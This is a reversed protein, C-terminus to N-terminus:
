ALVQPVMTKFISVVQDVDQTLRAAAQPTLGKAKPDLPNKLASAFITLADCAIIGAQTGEVAIPLLHQASALKSGAIPLGHLMSPLSQLGARVRSFDDHAAVLDGRLAAITKTDFPSKSLVKAGEEAAALHQLGGYLFAGAFVTPLISGLLSAGFCILLAM